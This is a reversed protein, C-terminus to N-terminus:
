LREMVRTLRARVAEAFAALEPGVQVAATQAPDVATVVAAGDDDEYVVVNCPMMVGAGLNKQLAEYALAPNCAGLIRYNRFSVGLKKNLTEKVDVETLVGFGDEKLAATVRRLAEDYGVSLKKKIGLEM